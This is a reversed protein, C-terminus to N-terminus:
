SKKKAKEDFKGARKIFASLKEVGIHGFVHHLKFIEKRTLPSAISNGKRKRGKVVKNLYIDEKIIKDIQPEKSSQVYSM